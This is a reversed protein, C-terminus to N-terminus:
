RTVLCEHGSRKLSGCATDAAARSPYGGALLKTVRGAPVLLRDRGALESRGSLRSWLKEANGSVAFAGLQVKWPGSAGQAAPRPASAQPRAAASRYTQLDAVTDVFRSKSGDVGIYASKEVFRKAYATGCGWDEIPGHGDLFALGKRYSEEADYAFADAEGYDWRGIM